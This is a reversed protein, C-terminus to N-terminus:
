VVRRGATGAPVDAVVDEEHPPRAPPRGFLRASLIGIEYLVILPGAMLLLNFLDSTPTLIASLILNVMIAHKRYRALLAPTIVRLRSLLTIALPLEFAFGFTLLFKVNFDVYLGVGIQPVLSRDVGFQLMFHLALPVIVFNAFAAGMAFFASAIALFPIIWRREGSLLAPEFFKWLHYLIVPMTLTIGGLLAVKIAAFIAETPAYFILDDSYPKKLWAIMEDAYTFTVVCAVLFFSGCWYLRRKLDSIHRHLPTRVPEGTQVEALTDGV